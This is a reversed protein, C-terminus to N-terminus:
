ECGNVLISFGDVRGDEGFYIQVWRWIGTCLSGNNFEDPRGPRISSYEIRRRGVVLHPEGFMALTEERTLGLRLGGPTRVAASVAPTERCRKKARIIASRDAHVDVVQLSDPYVTFVVATRDGPCSSLYCYLSQDNEGFSTRPAPGFFALVDKAAKLDLEFRKDQREGLGVLAYHADNLVASYPPTEQRPEIYGHIDEGVLIRSSVRKAMAHGPLALCLCLALVVFLKNRSM